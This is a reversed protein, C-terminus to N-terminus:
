GSIWTNYPRSGWGPSRQAPNQLPHPNNVTQILRFRTYIVIRWSWISSYGSPMHFLIECDFRMGSIVCKKYSQGGLPTNAWNTWLAQKVPLLDSTRNWYMGSVLLRIWSNDLQKRRKEDMRSISAIWGLLYKVRFIYPYKGKQRCILFIRYFYQNPYHIVQLSLELYWLIMLKTLNAWGNFLTRRYFRKKGAWRCNTYQFYCIGSDETNSNRVRLDVLNIRTVMPLCIFQIRRRWNSIKIRLLNHNLGM